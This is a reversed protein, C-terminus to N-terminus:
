ENEIGKIQIFDLVMNAGAFFSTMNLDCLANMIEDYKNDSIPLGKCTLKEAKKLSEEVEDYCGKESIMIEYMGAIIEERISM